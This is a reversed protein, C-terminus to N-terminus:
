KFVATQYKKMCCCMFLLPKSEVCDDNGSINSDCVIKSYYLILYLIYKLINQYFMLWYLFYLM